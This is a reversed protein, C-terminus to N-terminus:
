GKCIALISLIAAMKFIRYSAMVGSPLPAPPTMADYRIKLIAAISDISAIHL